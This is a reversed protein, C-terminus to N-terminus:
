SEDLVYIHLANEQVRHGPIIEKLVNSIDRSVNEIAVVPYGDELYRGILMEEGRTVTQLYKVNDAKLYEETGPAPNDLERDLKRSIKLGIFLRKSNM